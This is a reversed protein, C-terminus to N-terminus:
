FQLNIKLKLILIKQIEQVIKEVKQKLLGHIEMLIRCFLDPYFTWKKGVADVYILSFYDISHEGNKYFWRVKNSENCYKEFMRESKSKKTSNPYDRYVNKEYIITDKMKPDYKIIDM